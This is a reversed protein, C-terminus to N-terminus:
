RLVKALSYLFTYVLLWAALSLGVRGRSLIYSTSFFPLRPYKPLLATHVVTAICATFTLAFTLAIRAHPSLSHFPTGFAFHLFAFTGVPFPQIRSDLFHRILCTLFSTPHIRRISITWIFAQTADHCCARESITM